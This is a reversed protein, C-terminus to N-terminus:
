VIGNMRQTTSPKTSNKTDYEGNEEFNQDTPTRDLDIMIEVFCKFCM